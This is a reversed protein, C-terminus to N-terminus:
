ERKYCLRYFKDFFNLFNKIRHIVKGKISLIDGNLDLELNPPRAKSFEKKLGLFNKVYVKESDFRIFVPFHNFIPKVTAIYTYSKSNNQILKTWTSKIKKIANKKYAELSLESDSKKIIKIWPNKLKNTVGTDTNKLISSNEDFSQNDKINIVLKQM